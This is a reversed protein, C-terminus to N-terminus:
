WMSIDIKSGTGGRVPTAGFRGNGYRRGFRAISGHLPPRRLRMATIIRGAESSRTSSTFSRLKRAPRFASHGSRYQTMARRSTFGDLPQPQYGCRKLSQIATSKAGPTSWVVRDVGPTRKGKNETIRKVALAKGAFSHILLWQLTKAKNWRGEGVAKVIRAQLRRVQQLCHDQDIGTWRGQKSFPAGAFTAATM